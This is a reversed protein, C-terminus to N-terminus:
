VSSGPILDAPYYSDPFWGECPEVSITILFGYDDRTCTTVKASVPGNPAAVTLISGIPIAAETQFIAGSRWIEM